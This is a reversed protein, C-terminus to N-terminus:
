PYVTIPKSATDQCGHNSIATLSVVYQGASTYSAVPNTQTSFTNNGFNWNYGDANVTGNNIIFQANPACAASDSLTFAAVPPSFIQVIRNVSDSCYASQSILQIEYVGTDAFTHAPSDGTSTRGDGFSWVYSTAGQSSNIFRIPQDNFCVNTATFLAAPKQYVTLPMMTEASCGSTDKISLSINYEGPLAYYHAASYGTQFIAPDAPLTALIGFYPVRTLLQIWKKPLFSFQITAM